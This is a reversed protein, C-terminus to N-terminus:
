RLLEERLHQTHLAAADGQYGAFQLFCTEDIIAAPPM